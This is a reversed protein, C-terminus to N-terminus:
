NKDIKILFVKNLLTERLVEDDFLTKTTYVCNKACSVFNIVKVKKACSVFNFNNGTTINAQRACGYVCGSSYCHFPNTYECTDINRLLREISEYNLDAENESHNDEENKPQMDNKYRQRDENLNFASSIALLVILTLFITTKM